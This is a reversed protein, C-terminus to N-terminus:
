VGTLLDHAVPYRSGTHPTGDATPMHVLCGVLTCPDGGDSAYEAMLIHTLPEEKAAITVGFWDLLAHRSWAYATEPIADPDLGAVWRACDATVAFPPRIDPEHDKPLSM